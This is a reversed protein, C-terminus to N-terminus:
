YFGCSRHRVTQDLRGLVTLTRARALTRVESNEKSSRLNYELLLNNMQDLNAQLAADDARQEEILQQQADQQTTLWFGIGVLALPVILLQLWDWFTKGRLGWRSSKAEIPPQLFERQPNRDETPKSKNDV